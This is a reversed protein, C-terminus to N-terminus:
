EKKKRGPIPGSAITERPSIQYFLGFDNSEWIDKSPYEKLEEQLAPLESNIQNQDVNGSEGHSKYCTFNNRTKLKQLWGNSLKLHLQHEEPLQQHLLIQIRRAKEQVLEDSVFVKRKYMDWIWTTIATEM